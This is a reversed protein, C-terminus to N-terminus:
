RMCRATTRLRRLRDRQGGGAVVLVQDGTTATWVVAGSTADFAYVKHDRSGVYVIGNAVAPSSWVGAGTTATFRTTLTGVNGTNITTEVPQVGLPGTRVPVDDLRLRDVVVVLLIVFSVLVLPRCGLGPLHRSRPPLNM